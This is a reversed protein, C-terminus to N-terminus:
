KYYYLELTFVGNGYNEGCRYTCVLTNSDIYYAAFDKDNLYYPLPVYNGNPQMTHGIIKVLTVNGIITKLNFTERDANATYSVIRRYLIKGEWKGAITEMTSYKLNGNLSSIESEMEARIQELSTEEWHDETWAEPTNIDAKARWIKDSQICTQGKTYATNSDYKKTVMDAKAYYTPPNGGFESSNDANMASIVKGTKEPDYVSTTMDGGGMEGVYEVVAKGTPIKDDKNEVKDAIANKIEQLADANRKVGSDMYDLNDASLPTTKDPSNKWNKKEYGTFNELM